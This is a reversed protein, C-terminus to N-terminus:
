FIMTPKSPNRLLLRYMNLEYQTKSNQLSPSLPTENAKNDEVKPNLARDADM